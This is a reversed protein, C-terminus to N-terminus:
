GRFGGRWLARGGRRSHRLRAGRQNTGWQHCYAGAGAGAVRRRHRLLGARDAASAAVGRPDRRDAEEGCRRRGGADGHGAARRAAYKCHARGRPRRPGGGSRSQRRRSGRLPGEAPLLRLDGGDRRLDGGGDRQLVRTELGTEARIADVLDGGNTARRTAETAVAQDDTQRPMPVYLAPVGLRILEHYANYGAASVAADFAAYYRSMPYTSRLHVVGDPVSRELSDIASSLAAVQLEPRGALHRLCRETAANVEPGQGLQVLVNMRGSELGLAHEAEPRSVLDDPQVLVIPSVRHAGDDRDVTPGRDESAAFEGPELIRDFFRSRSLAARGTGPRWMARRSWVRHTGRASAM